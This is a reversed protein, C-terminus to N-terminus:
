AMDPKKGPNTPVALEFNKKLNLVLGHGGSM